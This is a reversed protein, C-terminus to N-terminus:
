PSVTLTAANNDWRLLTGWGPLFTGLKVAYTGTAATGPIQWSATFSRQQGAVFSQNDFARQFVRTGSPDYVEIDILASAAQGSTVSATITVTAGRGAAGPTVTVADSWGATPAPSGCGRGCSPTSAPTPATCGRGCATGSPRPTATSQTCGRGCTTGTPAPTATRTATGGGGTGYLAKLANIDDAQPTRLITGAAYSACMVSGPCPDATHNLGLAHGMEHVVVSQLDIGVGSTGTTWNWAPDIQMDFETATAPAGTNQYWSCTVALVAGSQPAWGVTNVGDRSSACAGTGASTTGGGSFTWAAGGANNWANAGGSIAAADGSLSSPKGAPNYSWSTTHAPWWFGSLVFDAEIAGADRTVSRSAPVRAVVAQKAAAVQEPYDPRGDDYMVLTIEVTSTGREEPVELVVHEERIQPRASAHAAPVPTRSMVALAAGASVLVALLSVLLRWRRPSRPLGATAPPQNM